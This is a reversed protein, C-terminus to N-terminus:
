KRKVRKLPKFDLLLISKGLEDFYIQDGVDFKSRRDKADHLCDTIFYPFGEFIYRSPVSWNKASDISFIAFIFEFGGFEFRSDWPIKITKTLSDKPAYFYQTFIGPNNIYETSDLKDFWANLRYGIAYRWLDPADVPTWIAKLVVSDNQITFFDSVQCDSQSVVSIQVLLVIIISTLINRKGTSMM